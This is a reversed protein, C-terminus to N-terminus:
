DPLFAVNMMTIGDAFGATLRPGPGAATIAHARYGLGELFGVYQSASVGSVQQLPDPNIESLIIPRFRKLTEIAGSLALHEAGEIDIKLLHCSELGLDDLRIVEVDFREYGEDERLNASLTETALLWTGGPNRMHVLSAITMRGAAAGLAVQRIEVHRFGNEAVSMQLRACTNPRPEFAYVRGAAGVIQGALVTFWGINAGIDGFTQGPKLLSRVFGTEIPEFHGAMAARSVGYDGLDVWLRRGGELETLLWTGLPDRAALDAGDAHQAERLSRIDTNLREICSSKVLRLGLPALLAKNLTKTIWAM